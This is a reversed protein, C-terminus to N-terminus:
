KMQWCAFKFDMMSRVFEPNFRNERQYNLTMIGVDDQRELRVMEM